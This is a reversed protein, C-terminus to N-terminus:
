IIWRGSLTSEVVLTEHSNLCADIRQLTVRGSRFATAADGLERAIADPDFIKCGRDSIARTLTSKGSGNPGCVAVFAPPM